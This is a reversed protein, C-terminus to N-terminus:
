KQEAVLKPTGYYPISWHYHQRTYMNRLKNKSMEENKFHGSETRLMYGKLHKQNELVNVVPKREAKLANSLEFKIDLNINQLFNQKERAEPIVKRSVAETFESFTQM